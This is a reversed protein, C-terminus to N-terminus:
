PLLEYRKTKVNLSVEEAGILNNLGANYFWLGTKHANTFQRLERDSMSRKRLQRRIKEEMEAIKNDADIPDLEKRVELQWNAISIAKEVTERDIETRLENIALLPLLRLAITDVRKSHISEERNMYWEEFTDRAEDTVEMVLGNGVLTHVKNLALKIKQKLDDPIQRPMAYKRKGKGTVLLLRNNFGINTFASTWTSEWTARTTAALISLCVGDLKVSHNKTHNEVYNSEFLTNIVPLLISAQVSCKSTFSRFEDYFILLRPNKVEGFRKQLGEASGVGYCVNFSDVFTDKFFEITKSAATSKRDDASEGILIAFLRPQPAIELRATLRDSLHSGMCTLFSFFFFEHPSELYQSYLKAFDGAIGSMVNLPFALNESAINREAMSREFVRTEDDTLSTNEVNLINQSLHDQAKRSLKDVYDVGQRLKHFIEGNEQNTFKYGLECLLDGFGPECISTLLIREETM